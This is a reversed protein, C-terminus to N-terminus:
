NSPSVAKPRRLIVEQANFIWICYSFRGYLSNFVGKPLSGQRAAVQKAYVMILSTTEELRGGFSDFITPIFIFGTVEEVCGPPM